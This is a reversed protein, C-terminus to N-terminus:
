CKSLVQLSFDICQFSPAQTPGFTRVFEFMEEMVILSQGTHSPPVVLREPGARVISFVVKHLRSGAM